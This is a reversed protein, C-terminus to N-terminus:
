TTLTYVRVLELLKRVMVLLEVEENVELRLCGGLMASDVDFRCFENSRHM